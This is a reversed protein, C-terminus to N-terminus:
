NEFMYANFLKIEGTVMNMFAKVAIGGSPNFIPTGGQVLSAMTVASYGMFAVWENVVPKGPPTSLANLQAIKAQIKLPNEM